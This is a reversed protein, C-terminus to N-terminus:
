ALAPLSKVSSRTDYMDGIREVAKLKIV